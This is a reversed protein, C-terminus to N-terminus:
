DDTRAADKDVVIRLLSLMRMMTHHVRVSAAETWADSSCRCATKQQKWREPYLL